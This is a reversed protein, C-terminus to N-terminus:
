QNGKKQEELIVAEILKDLATFKNEQIEEDSPATDGELGAKLNDFSYDAKNLAEITNSGDDPDGKVAYKKASTGAVDLSIFFDEVLKMITHKLENGSTAISKYIMERFTKTRTEAIYITGLLASPQLYTNLDLSPGKSKAEKINKAAKKAAREEAAKAKKAAIKKPDQKKYKKGSADVIEFEDENIKTVQLFYIDAAMLRAPDSTGATKTGIQEAGQKKLAVVYDVPQGINFGSAAQSVGSGKSYFKASGAGGGETTFDVAGMGGGPGTEKGTVKGGGLMALFYEFLYAGAGADFSNAIEAFYELLMVEALFDRNDKERIAKIAGEDGEAAAFYVRSIDSTHKIRKSFNKESGFIAPLITNLEDPFEGIEAAASRIQPQTITQRKGLKEKSAKDLVDFVSQAQAKLEPSADKSKQIAVLKQQMKPTFAEINNILYEFDEDTLEEQPDSIRRLVDYSSKPSAGNVDGTYLDDMSYNREALVQEILQDLKKFKDM